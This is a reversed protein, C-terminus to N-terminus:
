ERENKDEMFINIIRDIGLCFGVSPPLGQQLAELFRPDIDKMSKDNYRCQKELNKLLEEVDNNEDCIHAIAFKNYVIEADRAINDGNKKSLPSWESPPGVFLTPNKVLRINKKYVENWKEPPHKVLEKSINRVSLPPLSHKVSKAYKYFINSCIKIGEKFEAYPYIAELITYEHTPHKRDIGMNRFVNGIEYVPFQTNSCIKKLEMELTFRLYREKHDKTLTSFPNISSTGRSSSLTPTITELFDHKMLEVRIIDILKSKEVVRKRGLYDEGTYKQPNLLIKYDQPIIVEYGKKSLSVSGSGSIITGENFSPSDYLDRDIMLQRKENANLIDAFITNKHVRLNVVRGYFKQNM